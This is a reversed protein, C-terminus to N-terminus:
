RPSVATSPRSSSKWTGIVPPREIRRLPVSPGSPWTLENRTLGSPASTTWAPSSSVTPISSSNAVFSRLPVPGCADRFQSLQWGRADHCRRATGMCRFPRRGHVRRRGGLDEELVSAEHLRERVREDAVRVGGVVDHLLRPHLPQPTACPSHASRPRPQPARHPVERRVPPSRLLPARPVL